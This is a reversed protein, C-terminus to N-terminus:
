HERKFRALDQVGGMAVVVDGVGLTYDFRPNFVMRGGSTKVAVILLGLRRSADIEGVNKGVLFSEPEVRLEDIEVELVSRETVLDLLEQTTPRVIMAAIRHAGIAAPLVVRDAGAQVLKKLSRREEGRAIIRLNKNLNRSTLAIFVNEADGPLATVLTHAREVGVAQLVDEDTADGEMVILGLRAAEAIRSPESDVLVFTLKAQSLEDAVQQGVRGFGCIIIHDRLKELEHKMHRAGLIRELDGLITLQIFGTLTYVAASMVFVIVFVTYLKEGDPLASHETFGVTSVTIVTMYLADMWNRGFFLHQGAVAAAFLIATVVLGRRIRDLPNRGPQVSM